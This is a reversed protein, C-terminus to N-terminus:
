LTLTELLARAQARQYNAVLADISAQVYTRRAVDVDLSSSAGERYGIEVASLARRARECARLVAALATDAARATRVAAAVDLAITRREEALQARVADAQARAAALRDGAGSALPLDVHVAAQAGHVPVGTDVGAQYGGGATASPLGAARALTIDDTRADLFALLAGFEPRNALARAVAQREDLAVAPPEFRVDRLSALDAPDVGTSSALADVANARDADARASDAQAQALMVEARLADIRPAEGVSARLQAARLERRAGAVADDRVGAVAIASLAAFYLGIASARARLASAEAERQAAALEAAAERTTASNTLIDNISIGAGVTVFHQEVTATGSQGSQPSLAYDATVHPIGGLRALRLDAERERMAARALAVQASNAITRAIADSLSVQSFVSLATVVAALLGTM